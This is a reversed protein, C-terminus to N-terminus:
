QKCIKIELVRRYCHRSNSKKKRYKRRFWFSSYIRIKLDRMCQVSEKLLIWSYRDIIKKNFMLLVVTDVNEISITWCDLDNFFDNADNQRKYMEYFADVLIAFMCPNMVLVDGQILNFKFLFNEIGRLLNVSYNISLNPEIKM